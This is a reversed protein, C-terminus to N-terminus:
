AIYLLALGPRSHTQIPRDNTLMLCCVSLVILSWARRAVSYLRVAHVARHEELLVVAAICYSQSLSQSTWAGTALLLAEVRESALPCHLVVGAHSSTLLWLAHGHMDSPTVDARAM